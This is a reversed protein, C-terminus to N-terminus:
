WVGVGVGVPPGWYYPHYPHYYGGGYVVCGSLMTALMIACLVKSIKKM